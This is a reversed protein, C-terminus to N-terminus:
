LMNYYYIYIPICRTKYMINNYIKIAFPFFFTDTRARQPTYVHFYTRSRVDFTTLNINLSLFSVLHPSPFSFSFSFSLFFCFIQRPLAYLTGFVACHCHHRRTVRTPLTRAVTNYHEHPYSETPVTTRYRYRTSCYNRPLVSM